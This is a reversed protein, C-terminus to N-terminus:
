KEKTSTRPDEGKGINGQSRAVGLKRLLGRKGMEYKKENLRKKKWLKGETLIKPSFAFGFERKWDNPNYISNERKGAKKEGRPGMSGFTM